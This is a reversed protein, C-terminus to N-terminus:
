MVLGSTVVAMTSPDGVGAGINVTTAHRGFASLGSVRYRQKCSRLNPSQAWRMLLTAPRGSAPGKVQIFM